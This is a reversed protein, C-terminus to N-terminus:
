VLSQEWMLCSGVLSRGVLSWEWLLGNGVFYCQVCAVIKSLLGSWCFAVRMVSWLLGCRCSFEGCLIGSCVLSLELLLGDRFSVMGFLSWEQLSAVGLFLGCQM